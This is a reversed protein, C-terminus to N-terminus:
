TFPKIQQPAALVSNVQVGAQGEDLARRQRNDNGHLGHETTTAMAFYM